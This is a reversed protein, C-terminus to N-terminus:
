WFGVDKYKQMYFEDIDMEIDFAEETKFNCKIIEGKIAEVLQPIENIHDRNYQIVQKVQSSKATSM